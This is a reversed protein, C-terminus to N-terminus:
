FGGLPRRRRRRAHSRPPPRPSRSRRRPACPRRTRGQARRRARRAARGSPAHTRARPQRPGTATGGGCLSRRACVTTRAHTGHPKRAPRPTTTDHRRGGPKQPAGRLPGRGPSRRRLRASGATAGQPARLRKAGRQARGSSPPAPHARWAAWGRGKPRGHELQTGRVVGCTLRGSRARGGEEPTQEGGAARRSTAKSRQSGTRQRGEWACSPVGCGRGGGNSVPTASSRSRSSRDSWSLKRRSKGSRRPRSRSRRGRLGAGARAEFRM